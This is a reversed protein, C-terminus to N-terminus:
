RLISKQLGSELNDSVWSMRCPYTTSGEDLADKTWGVKQSKAEINHKALHGKGQVQSRSSPYLTFVGSKSLVIFLCLLM